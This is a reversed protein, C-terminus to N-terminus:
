SGGNNFIGLIPGISNQLAASIIRVLSPTGQLITCTGCKCKSHGFSPFSEKLVRENQSKSEGRRLLRITHQEM